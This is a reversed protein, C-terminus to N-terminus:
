QDLDADIQELRWSRSVQLSAEFGGGQGFASPM